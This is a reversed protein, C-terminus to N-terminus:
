IGKLARAVQNKKNPYPHMGYRVLLKISTLKVDVACEEIDACSEENWELEPDGVEHIEAITLAWPTLNKELDENHRLM